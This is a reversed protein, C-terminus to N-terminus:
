SAARAEERTKRRRVGLTASRRREARQEDTPTTTRTRPTRTGDLRALTAEMVVRGLTRQRQSGGAHQSSPLRLRSGPTRRNGRVARHAVVREIVHQWYHTALGSREDAVTVPESIREIDRAKAPGHALDSAPREQHHHPMLGPGGPASRTM